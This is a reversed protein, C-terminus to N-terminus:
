GGNTLREVAAKYGAFFSDAALQELDGPDAKSITNAGYDIGDNLYAALESEYREDGLVAALMPKGDNRSDLYEWAFSDMNFKKLHNFLLKEFAAVFPLGRCPIDYYELADCIVPLKTHNPFARGEEYSGWTSNPIGTLKFM